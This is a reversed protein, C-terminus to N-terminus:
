VIGKDNLFERSINLSEFPSRRCIDQEVFYWRVGIERCAAIIGDWNLNGQGIEAMIQAANEDIAMDKFHVVDMRGKVKKIWDIVDGGGTQVWYTDLEFQVAPSTEELLLELGTRGSFNRFEFQHNHYLFHMGEDALREAVASAEKAFALFGEEGTRYRAPMSGIGPYQCNWAKHMRIVAPLDSLMQDFSIHTAACVLGAEQLADAVQEVSIDAGQGSIQVAEYGMAKVKKLSDKLGQADKCFERLTYMQAGLQIM